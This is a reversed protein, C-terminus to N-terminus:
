KKKVLHEIGEVSKRGTFTINLFKLLLIIDEISKVQDFDIEYIPEVKYPEYFATNMSTNNALTWQNADIYSGNVTLGGSSLTGSSTGSSTTGKLPKITALLKEEMLEEITFHKGDKPLNSIREVIDDIM